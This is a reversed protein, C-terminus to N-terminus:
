ADAYVHRLAEEPRADQAAEAAEAAVEVAAQIEQWLRADAQRSLLGATLLKRRFREIPDDTLRDGTPALRAELLTPGGGQRAREIAEAAAQHGAMLDTGDVVMGALGDGSAGGAVEVVAGGQGQPVSV